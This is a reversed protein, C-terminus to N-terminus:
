SDVGDVRMLMFFFSAYLLPNFLNHLSVFFIIIKEENQVYILSSGKYNLRNSVGERGKM